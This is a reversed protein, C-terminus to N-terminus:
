PGSAASTAMVARGSAVIRRPTKGRFATFNEPIMLIERKANCDLESYSPYYRNYKEVQQRSMPDAVAASMKAAPRFDPDRVDANIM